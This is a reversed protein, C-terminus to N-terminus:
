LIPYQEPVLDSFLCEATKLLEDLSFFYFIGKAGNTNLSKLVVPFGTEKAFDRIEELSKPKISFPIPIDIQKALNMLENKLHLRKLVQFDSVPIITDTKELRSLYKAALFTEEHVPMYVKPKYKIFIDELWEIFVAPNKYFSPYILRKDALRSWLSM